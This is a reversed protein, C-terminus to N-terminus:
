KYADGLNEWKQDRSPHLPWVRAEKGIKYMLLYQIKAPKTITAEQGEIFLLTMFSYPSTYPM